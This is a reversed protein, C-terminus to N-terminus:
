LKFQNEEERKLEWKFQNEEERKMVNIENEEKSIENDEPLEKSM